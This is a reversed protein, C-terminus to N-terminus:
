SSIPDKDYARTFPLPQLPCASLELGQSTLPMLPKTARLLGFVPCPEGEQDVSAALLSPGRPAGAAQWCEWVCSLRPPPSPAPVCMEMGVLGGLGLNYPQVFCASSSPKVLSPSLAPPKAPSPFPLPLGGWIGASPWSRLSGKSRCFSFSLCCPAHGHQRPSPRCCLWCRAGCGLWGSPLIYLAIWVHHMILVESIM